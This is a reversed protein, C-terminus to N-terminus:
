HARTKGTKRVGLFAVNLARFMFHKFGCKAGQVYFHKIYILIFKPFLILLIHIHM